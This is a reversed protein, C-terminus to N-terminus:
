FFLNSVAGISWYLSAGYLLYEGKFRLKIDNMRKAVYMALASSGIKLGYVSATAGVYNATERILPNGEFGIGYRKINNMTLISDTLGVGLMLTSAILLKKNEKAFKVVKELMYNEIAMPKYIKM